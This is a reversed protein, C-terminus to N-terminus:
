NRGNKKLKLSVNILNWNYPVIGLYPIYLRKYKRKNIKSAFRKGEEFSLFYPTTTKWKRGLREHIIKVEGYLILMSAYGHSNFEQPLVFYKIDSFNRFLAERLGPMDNKINNDICVNLWDLLVKDTAINKKIVIVGSNFEPILDRYKLAIDGTHYSSEQTTTIDVMDLVEFLPQIDACVFTDSDLFITRDFPSNQIGIIKSLYTYNNIELNIIVSDFFSYVEGTALEQTCVIAIPLKSFQRVSKASIIAENVFKLKNVVYLYGSNM